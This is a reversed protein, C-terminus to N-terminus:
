DTLAVPSRSPDPIPPNGPDSTLRAAIQDLDQQSLYAMIVGKPFYQRLRRNINENTQDCRPQL